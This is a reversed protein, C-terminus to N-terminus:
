LVVKELEIPENECPSYEDYWDLGL